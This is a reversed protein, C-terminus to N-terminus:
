RKNEKKDLPFTFHKMWKEDGGEKNFVGGQYVGVIQYISVLCVGQFILMPEMIM